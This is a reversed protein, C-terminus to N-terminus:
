DSNTKCLFLIIYSIKLRDSYMFNYVNYNRSFIYQQTIIVLQNSYTEIGGIDHSFNLKLTCKYHSIIGYMRVSYQLLIKYM